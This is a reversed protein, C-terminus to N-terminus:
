IDACDHCSNFYFLIARVQFYIIIILVFMVLIVLVVVPVSVAETKEDGEDVEGGIGQLATQRHAGQM